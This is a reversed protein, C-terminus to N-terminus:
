RDARALPLLGAFVLAAGVPLLDLDVALAVFGVFALAPGWGPLLRPRVTAARVLLILLGLQFLAPGVTLVPDPVTDAVRPFLDGLIVWVFAAAGLLGAVTAVEVLVRSRRAVGLLARRLGLLLGAFGLIGLLFLTHGVDWALGDHRQGNLGDVLRCLGYLILLIPAILAALRTPTTLPVITRTDTATM